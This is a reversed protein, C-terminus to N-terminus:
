FFRQGDNWGDADTYSSSFSVTGNLQTGDSQFIDWGGNAYRMLMDSKGDGNVDAVVFHNGTGFGAVNTFWSTFSSTYVPKTGNSKWVDFTGNANRALLDGKGDGDMDLIFFYNGSNFGAADTYSSTFSPGQTYTTGNSTWTDWGGNAGRTIFDTKGDGNLDLAYFRNGYQWGGADTYYTSFSTTETLDVGNNMWVHFTGASDRALLDGKKDGNVDAVLFRNGDNWGDLDTLTNWFSHDGVMVTGDSLNVDFGGDGSRVLMDTKGDGDFDMIFFHNGDYFGSDDAYYSTFMTNYQEISGNSRWVLFDGVAKRAMFEGKLDGNVDTGCLRAPSVCAGGICTQGAACAHGCTLCNNPDTQTNVCTTGCMTYGSNCTCSGASCTANAGCAHSCTGCNNVDTQTNVCTGSCSTYGSNCVCTGSVCSANAGCAPTCGGGGGGTCVGNSCTQGAGCVVGCGGNPSCHWPDRLTDFCDGNCVSCGPPSDPQVDRALDAAGVGSATWDRVGIDLGDSGANKDPSNSALQWSGSQFAAQALTHWYCAHGSCASAYYSSHTNDILDNNRFDVGSFYTSFVTDGEYPTSCPADVCRVGGAAAKVINNRYIFASHLSQPRNETFYVLLGPGQTYTNILTNHDFTLNQSGGLSGSVGGNELSFVRGIGNDGTPDGWFDGPVKDVLNNDFAICNMSGSAYNDDHALISIGKPANLFKNNIIKAHSINTSSRTGDQNRVTFRFLAGANEDTCNDWANEVYNGALLIRNGAKFEIGTKALYSNRWATTYPKYFHNNTVTIDGPVMNDAAADAGGFMFGQTSASVYCNDIKYPGSGNVSNIGHAEHVSPDQCIPPIPYHIDAVRSNIIALYAGDLKVAHGVSVNSNNPNGHVYMRDLVINKAKNTISTRSGLQVLGDYASASGAAVDLGILWYRHDAGDATAIAAQGNTPAVIKALLGFHAKEVRKGPLPFSANTTQNSRIIIWGTGTRPGLTFQGTYTVTSDLVIEDGPQVIALKATLDASSAVNYTTGTKTPVTSTDITAPATPCTSNYIAQETVGVDPKPPACASVFLVVLPRHIRMIDELISVCAITAAIPHTL